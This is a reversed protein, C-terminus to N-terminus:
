VCFCVCIVCGKNVIAEWIQEIKMELATLGGAVCLDKAIREFPCPEYANDENQETPGGLSQAAEEASAKGFADLLVAIVVNVLVLSVLLMYSVYFIGVMPGQGTEAMLDRCDESWNDGTMAQFLSFFSIFFSSFNHPAVTSFFTVGVIAYIAVVLCVICFANGMPVLSKTLAGMIKRLSAIRKFLRFVRFCRMLRLVDAGPLDTLVLSILSVLVVILDFWNWPDGVFEWLFTAFINVLLEITFICTFVLDVREFLRNANADDDSVQAQCINLMFNGLILAAVGIQCHDGIYRSRVRKRFNFFATTQVVPNEKRAHLLRSITETWRERAEMDEVRFVFTRGRHFGIPSTFLAFDTPALRYSFAARKEDLMASKFRWFVANGTSSSGRTAAAPFHSAASSAAREAGDSRRKAQVGDDAAEEIGRTGIGIVEDMEIRDIVKTNEFKSYTVCMSRVVVWRSLFADDEKSGRKQIQGQLLIRDQLTSFASSGADHMLEWAANDKLSKVFDSAMGARGRAERGPRRVAGGVTHQRTLSRSEVHGLNLFEFPKM